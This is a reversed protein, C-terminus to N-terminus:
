TNTYYSSTAVHQGYKNIGTTMVKFFSSLDPVANFVYIKIYLHQVAVCCLLTTTTPIEISQKPRFCGSSVNNDMEDVNFSVFFYKNNCKQHYYM